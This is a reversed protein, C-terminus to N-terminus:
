GRVGRDDVPAGGVRQGRDRVDLQLSRDVATGEGGGVAAGVGGAGGVDGGALALGHARPNAGGVRGAVLGLEGLQATPGDVGFLRHDVQLRRRAHGVAGAGLHDHAGEVDARRDGGVRAVVRGLREHGDVALQQDDRRDRALAFRHGDFGLREVRQVADHAGRRRDRGARLLDSQGQLDHALAFALHQLDARRSCRGSRQDHASAAAALADTVAGIELAGALRQHAQAARLSRTGHCGAEHGRGSVLRGGRLGGLAQSKLSCVDM